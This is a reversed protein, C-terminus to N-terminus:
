RRKWCFADWLLAPADTAGLSPRHNFVDFNAAELRDLIRSGGLWTLRLEWRLRGSVADCVPRGAAFFARTRGAVIRLASTWEPTLRQLDLDEDKAGAADRDEVPVYLRGHQWDRAFDQWFNTLQLATCVADSEADLTADDFGAVRLVLRGVPNASRRCYDLVDAWTHYRTTTVDQRFASLLDEFLSAPLKHERITNGLARFVRDEASPTEASPTQGRQAPNPTQGRQAPDPTQGRGAPNPTQGGDPSPVVANLRRQWDDLLRLRESDPIGPDDAFDDATRAFAYIAAIHPRMRAPLLHSAVPFNEYHAFALKECYAYASSLDDPSGAAM